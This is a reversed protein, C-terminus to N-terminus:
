QKKRKLEKVKEVDVNNKTEEAYALMTLDGNRYDWFKIFIRMQFFVAIICSVIWPLKNDSNILRVVGILINIAGMYFAPINRMRSLFTQKKSGNISESLSILSSEYITEYVVWIQANIKIHLNTLSMLRKQIIYIFLHPLLLLFAVYDDTAPIIYGWFVITATFLAIIYSNKITSINNLENKMASYEADPEIKPIDNIQTAKELKESDSLYKYKVM